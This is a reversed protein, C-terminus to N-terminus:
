TTRTSSRALTAYTAAVGATHFAAPSHMTTTATTAAAAWAGPQADSDDYRRGGGGIRGPKV